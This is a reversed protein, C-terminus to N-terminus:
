MQEFLANDSQNSIHLLNNYCLIFINNNNLLSKGNNLTKLFELFTKIQKNANARIKQIKIILAWVLM